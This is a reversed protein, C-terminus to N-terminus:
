LRVFRDYVAVLTRLTQPVDHCPYGTRIRFFSGNVLSRIDWTRPRGRPSSAPLPQALLKWQLTPSTM